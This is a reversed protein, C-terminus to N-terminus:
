DALALLPLTKAVVGFSQEYDITAPIGLMDRLLAEWIVSGQFFAGSALVALRPDALGKRCPGTPVKPYVTFLADFVPYQRRVSRIDVGNAILRAILQPSRSARRAGVGADLDMKGEVISAAIFPDASISIAEDLLTEKSGFLHYIQGQNVRARKAIERTSLVGLGPSGLADITAQVLANRVQDVGRPVRNPTSQRPTTQRRRSFELSDDTLYLQLVHDCAELVAAERVQNNASAPLRAANELFDDLSLWGLLLSMSALTGFRMREPLNETTSRSTAVQRAIVEMVATAANDTGALARSSLEGLACRLLLKSERQGKLADLLARFASQSDEHAQLRLDRLREALLEVVALELGDKSGFHRSVLAPSCGAQDSIQRLTVRGPGRDAFLNSAADLIARRSAEGKSRAPSARRTPIAQAPHTAKV